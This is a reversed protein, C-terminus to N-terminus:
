STIAKLDTTLQVLDLLDPAKNTKMNIWDRSLCVYAEDCYVDLFNWTMRLPAGWTIVTLGRDDYGVVPVCHGGWSGPEANEGSAVSWMSQDQASLPLQVGIYCNGFLAVSDKVDNHNKPDCGAFALIRHGALGTQRWYKLVDLMVCGSDTSPDGNYGSVAKYAALVQADLPTVGPANACKTWEEIMHASAAITCDGLEDNLYMPWKALVKSFDVQVPPPPMGPKTYNALMLTREDHRAPRKGLKM